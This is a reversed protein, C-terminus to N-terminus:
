KHLHFHKTYKCWLVKRLLIFFFIKSASFCPYLFSPNASSAKSLTAANPSVKMVLSSCIESKTFIDSDNSLASCLAASLTRVSSFELILSNSPSFDDRSAFSLFTLTSSTTSSGFPSFMESTIEFAIASAILVIKLGCPIIGLTIRGFAFIGVLADHFEVLDASLFPCGFFKGGLELLLEVLSNRLLTDVRGLRKFACLVGIINGVEGFFEFKEFVM